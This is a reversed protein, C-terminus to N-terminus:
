AAPAGAHAGRRWAYFAPVGALLVALGVASVLPQTVLTNAVVLAAAAVFLAPTVPYGPVRFVRGAEPARRRFVFIAVAGLGYFIWATFVVSTLLQDFTGTLAFVVSLVTSWLIAAAPTRFRPHVEALRRFFLGDRAMQYFVRPVTLVSSHAASFTAVVVMAAVGKGWGPGLTAAVADAAISSSGRAATPGLAAFYAANTLLYLGVLVATGLVLGVPFARQPDRTEGASFTVWQWGEYAWLVGVMAAGIGALFSPAALGDSPGASGLVDARGLVLLVAGLVVLAGAKVAASVNQVNASERAGVVNVAAIVLIMTVAAVRAGATGMPLIQRLYGVSAVALAAVTAPGIILFLVWGYLFAPLPGFADRIYCYIGGAQPNAAGLEAYTLAGLLCLVGGLLWVLLAAGTAGGTARLTDAPILFIGSGIVNGIVAFLLDGRTLTRKLETM